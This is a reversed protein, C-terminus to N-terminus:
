MESKPFKDTVHYVGDVIEIGKRWVAMDKYDKVTMRTERAVLWPDRAM